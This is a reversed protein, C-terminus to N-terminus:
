IFIKELQKLYEAEQPMQGYKQAQWMMDVLAEMMLHEVQEASQKVQCQKKFLDQIGKPRDTNIQDRIALHLSLHLFPNTQGAEPQFDKDEYKQPNEITSQYEPHEQIVTVIQKELLSLDKKDQFKQWANFFQNRLQHRENSHFM